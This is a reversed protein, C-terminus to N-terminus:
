AFDFQEFLRSQLTHIEIRGAFRHSASIQYSSSRQRNSKQISARSAIAIAIKCSGNNM